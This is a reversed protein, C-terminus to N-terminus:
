QSFLWTRVHACVTKIREDAIHQRYISAMDDADPIHGMVFNVAAQDLTEAAVTEFSRRLDYYSGRAFELEKRIRAFTWGISDKTKGAREELWPRRQGTLFGVDEFQELYPRKRVELYDAIASRTEPWLWARRPAGTKGRPLSLWPDTACREVQDLTMGALDRAGIGANIGLYLLPRFQVSARDIIARIQDAPLDLRGKKSRHRRLAKKTVAFDRGYKPRQILEVDESSAWNLFAKIRRIDGALTGPSRVKVSRGRLGAKAVKPDRPIPKAFEAKIRAFDIPTWQGPRSDAGQTSILRKITKVADDVTRQTLDGTTVQQRCRDIYVNGLQDLRPSPDKRRVPRGAKIDDMEDRWRQLAKEKDSGFYYRKGNVKKSWQGNGHLRLPFNSKKGM